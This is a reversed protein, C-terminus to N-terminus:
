EGLHILANQADRSRQSIGPTTVDEYTTGEIIEHQGNAKVILVRAMPNESFVEDLARQQLVMKGSQRGGTVEYIRRAM